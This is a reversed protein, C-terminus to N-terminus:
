RRHWGRDPHRWGWGYGPGYIWVYGPAPMPYAPAIYVPEGPPPGYVACGSLSFTLAALAAILSKSM